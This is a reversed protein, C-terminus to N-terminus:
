KRKEPINLEGVFSGVVRPAAGKKLAFIEASAAHADEQFREALDATFEELAEAKPPFVYLSHRDPLAVWIEAGFLNEFLSALSPAMLLSAMVPREGRFVAYIVQGESNKILDPKLSALLRDATKQAREAFTEPSLGLKAFEEKSYVEIGPISSIERAPTLVTARAGDPVLSRETRMARPEPLMLFPELRVPDAAILDIACLLLLPLCKM